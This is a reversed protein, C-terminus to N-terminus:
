DPLVTAASGSRAAGNASRSSGLTGRQGALRGAPGQARARGAGTRSQVVPARGARDRGVSLSLADRHEVSSARANRRGSRRERLAATRAARDARPLPGPRDPQPHAVAGPVLQRQVRPHPGRAPLVHHRAAGAGRRRVRVLPDAQPPRAVAPRAEGLGRVAHVWLRACVATGSQRGHRDSRAGAAAHLLSQDALHDGQDRRRADARTRSVHAAVVLAVPAM